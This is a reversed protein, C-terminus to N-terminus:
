SALGGDLRGGGPVLISPHERSTGARAPLVAARVRRSVQAAIAEVEGVDHVLAAELDQLLYEDLWAVTLPFLTRLHLRAGTRAEFLGELTRNDELLAVVWDHHETLLERVKRCSSEDWTGVRSILRRSLDGRRHLRLLEEDAEGVARWADGRAWLGLREDANMGERYLLRRWRRAREPGLLRAPDRGALVSSALARWERRSCRLRDRWELLVVRREGIRQIVQAQRPTLAALLALERADLGQLAALEGRWPSPAPPLTGTVLGYFQVATLLRHERVLDADDLRALIRESLVRFSPPLGGLLMGARERGGRAGLEAATAAVADRWRADLRDGVVQAFKRAQPHREAQSPAAIALGAPFCCADPAEGVRAAKRRVAHELVAAVNPLCQRALEELLGDFTPPPPVRLLTLSDLLWGCFHDPRNRPSPLWRAPDDGKTRREHEFQLELVFLLTLHLGRRDRGRKGM